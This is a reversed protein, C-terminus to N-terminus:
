KVPEDQNRKEEMIRIASILEHGKHFLPSLPLEGNGLDNEKFEGTLVSGGKIIYFRTHDPQPYPYTEIETLQPEFQESFNLFDRAVTAVEPHEGAGITGGGHSLYLSCAGDKYAVLTYCGEDFGTELLIAIRDGNKLDPIKSTAPDSLDIVGQRMDRYIDAVEYTQPKCGFLNSFLSMAIVMPILQKM